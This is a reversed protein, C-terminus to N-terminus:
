VGRRCTKKERTGLVECILTLETRAALAERMGLPRAAARRAVQAERQDELSLTECGDPAAHFLQTLLVSDVITSTFPTQGDPADVHVLSADHELAFMGSHRALAHLDVVRTPRIGSKSSPPRSSPHRSWYVCVALALM